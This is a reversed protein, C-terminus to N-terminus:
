VQYTSFIDEYNEERRCTEYTGLLSDYAIVAPSTRIFPPKLVITYAGVNDFVVYDGMSMQEQFNKYLYDIEMCTYGVVDIPSDIKDSSRDKDDSYIQMPLNIKNLTPKINYISGTVTAFRKYGVTKLSVVKSVFKMVDGVLGIGPEIILEPGSAGPFADVFQPAIVEAYEQYSPIPCGFQQALDQSMKGFFGGGIDIYRPHRDRFYIFSLELLRRTRLAYSELSRESSFHCHLGEVQCNALSTLAEFISELEGGNVDVGFRSVDGTGVDFNCRVGVAFKRTPIERAVAEVMSTEHFSDLNIISGGLLAYKIDEYLKVPGNFIIKQPPVGVRLALDYEMRSVVEAYGGLLNVCKCLKPIYNTKYSYAINSRAYISRFSELLGKYNSEFRRLDLIYFSDGYEKELKMLLELSLGMKWGDEELCGHRLLISQPCRVM